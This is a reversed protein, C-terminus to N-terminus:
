DHAFDGTSLYPSAGAPTIDLGVLTNTTRGISAFIHTTQQNEIHTQLVFPREHKKNVTQFDALPMAPTVPNLFLLGKL